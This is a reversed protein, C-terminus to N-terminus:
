KPTLRKLLEEQEKKEEETMSKAQTPTLQKLLNELEEREKETLPKANEPTLRKLLEEINERVVIEKKLYLKERQLNVWFNVWFIVIFVNILILIITLINQQTKNLSQIKQRLPKFM